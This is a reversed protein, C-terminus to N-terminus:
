NWHLTELTVPLADMNILLQAAKLHSERSFPPQNQVWTLANSVLNELPQCDKPLLRIGVQGMWLEFFDTGSSPTCRLVRLRNQATPTEGQRLDILFGKLTYLEQLTLSFVGSEWILHFTGHECRYCARDKSEEAIQIMYQCM